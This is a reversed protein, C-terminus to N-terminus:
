ATDSNIGKSVQVRFYTVRLSVFDPLFLANNVDIALSIVEDHRLPHTYRALDRSRNSRLGGGYHDITLGFRSGVHLARLAAL